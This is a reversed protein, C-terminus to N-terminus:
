SIQQAPFSRGRPDRGAAPGLPLPRRKRAARTSRSRRQCLRRAGGGGAHRSWPASGAGVVAGVSTGVQTTAPGARDRFSDSPSSLSRLRGAGVPRGGAKGSRRAAGGVMPLCRLESVERLSLSRLRGAGSRPAPLPTEGGGSGLGLQPPGLSAAENAATKVRVGGGSGQRFKTRLRVLDADANM